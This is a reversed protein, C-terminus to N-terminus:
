IALDPYPRPLNAKRAAINAAMKAEKVTGEKKAREAATADAALGALEAEALHVANVSKIYALQADEAGSVADADKKQAAADAADAAAIAANANDLGTALASLQEDVRSESTLAVSQLTGNENLKFKTSSDSLPGGKHRLVYLKKQNPLVMQTQQILQYGDATKKYLEVSYQESVRFPLGDIKAGDSPQLPLEAIKVKASCGYVAIAAGLALSRRIM